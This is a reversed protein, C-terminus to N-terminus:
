AALKRWGRGGFNRRDPRLIEALIELSEKIRPGPRTFFHNSDVAYVAGLRWARLERFRESSTLIASEAVAKELGFGCPMLIVADPDVSALADLSVRPETLVPEGGALRVLEPIWHGSGMLPDLWELCAVRPARASSCGASIAQMQSKLSAALDAAERSRGTAEGLRAMDIWIEELSGPHLSLVRTPLGTLSCVAAEVDKLSVACVRCQDQTVILDPRLERILDTEVEYISLGQRVLSELNRHVEGSSGEVGFRPKSCVPLSQVSPPFDCEHSRGVLEPGAGIACVTETSSAILSVIRM